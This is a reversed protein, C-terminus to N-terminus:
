FLGEGEGEALGTAWQEAITRGRGRRMRREALYRRLAASMHVNVVTARREPTAGIGRTRIALAELRDVEDRLRPTMAPDIRIVPIVTAM